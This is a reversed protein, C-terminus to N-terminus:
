NQRHLAAFRDFNRGECGGSMGRTTTFETSALSMVYAVVKCTLHQSSNEAIMNAM